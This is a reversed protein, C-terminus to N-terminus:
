PIAYSTLHEPRGRTALGTRATGFSTANSITGRTLECEICCTLFAISKAPYQLLRPHRRLHVQLRGKPM